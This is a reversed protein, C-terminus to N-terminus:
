AAATQRLQVVDGAQMPKACFVAWDHMLARRKEFLDGRRYAAEVQNGITHALAQELVHNPYSTCEAAWDRFCSRFGHVTVKWGTIAVARALVVDTLRRGNRSGPFVLADPADSSRLEAMRALTALAANSLPVRHEKSAKMRAGPVRWVAEGTDMENWIMGRAEGSRAATLVIYELCRAAVGEQERLKAMFAGVERWDLAAHHQVRAIKSRAPLMHALHGKWRAPNEGDRWQRAAAFDLLTEIRGRVRSATETRERWLPEIVQMVHATSVERVPLDALLPLVYDRLTNRWQQRHKPNSWSAEHSALYDDAVKGFTILGARTLAADARQREAATKREELPDVGDRVQQRLKSAKLRAEALSVANRGRARGLGAERTRGNSTFRFVWFGTGDARVLLHLGDGDYHRGPPATEARRASLPKARRPM